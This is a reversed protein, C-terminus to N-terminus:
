AFAGLAVKALTLDSVQLVDQSFRIDPRVKGSFSVSENGRLELVAISILAHIKQVHTRVAREQGAFQFNTAVALVRM